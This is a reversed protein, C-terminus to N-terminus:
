IPEVQYGEIRISLSRQIPDVSIILSRSGNQGVLIGEVGDLSGGRVRVRQGVKLFAHQTLPLNAAVVARVAEIQDAPIPTGHGQVGVLDVVGQTKLVRVREEPSPAICVFAYGAFLPLEVVKRRDSWQRIKSIVPAFVAIGQGQLHREVVKEHRSRTRIAYWNMAESTEAPYIPAYRAVGVSGTSM